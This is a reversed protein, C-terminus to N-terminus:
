GYIDRMHIQKGSNPDVYTTQNIMIQAAVDIASRTAKRRDCPAHDVTFGWNSYFSVGYCHVECGRLAAELGVGSTITAVIPKQDLLDVISLRAPVLQVQPYTETLFAIEEDNFKNKPHAKYYFSHSEDFTGDTLVKQVLDTNTECATDTFKLAQDGRVQGIILVAKAALEFPERDTETFKTVGKEVLSRIIKENEARESTGAEASANLADELQSPSRGDFYIGKNSHLFATVNRGDSLGPVLGAEIRIVDDILEEVKFGLNMLDRYGWVVCTLDDPLIKLLFRLKAKAGEGGFGPACRFYNLRIIRADQRVTPLFLKENDNVLFGLVVPGSKRQLILKLCLIFFRIHGLISKSIM